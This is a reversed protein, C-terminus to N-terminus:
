ISSSRWIVLYMVGVDIRCVGQVSALYVLAAALALGAIFVGGIAGASAVLLCLDAFIGAIQDHPGALRPTWIAM